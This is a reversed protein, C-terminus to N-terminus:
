LEPGPLPLNEARKEEITKHRILRVILAAYAAINLTLVFYGLYPIVVGLGIGNLIPHLYHELYGGDYVLWGGRRRLSKELLTLPCEWTTTLMLTAWILCPLHAWAIKPWRLATVGGFVVFTVFGAHLLVVLAIMLATTM